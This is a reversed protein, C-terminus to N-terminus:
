VTSSQYIKDTSRSSRFLCVIDQLDMDTVSWMLDFSHNLHVNMFSIEVCWRLYYWTEFHRQIEIHLCTCHALDSVATRYYKDNQIIQPPCNQLLYTASHTNFCKSLRRKYQFTLEAVLKKYKDNMAYESICFMSAHGVTGQTKYSFMFDVFFCQLSTGFWFQM